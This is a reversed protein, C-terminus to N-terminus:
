NPSRALLRRVSAEHGNASRLSSRATQATKSACTSQGSVKLEDACVRGAEAAARSVCFTSLRAQDGGGALLERAPGQLYVLARDTAAKCRPGPSCHEALVASPLVSASALALFGLCARIMAVM